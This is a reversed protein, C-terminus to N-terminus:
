IYLLGIRYRPLLLFPFLEDFFYFDYHSRMYRFFLLLSPDDRFFFIFMIKPFCASLYSLRKLKQVRKNNNVSLRILRCCKLNRVLSLKLLASLKRCKNFIVYSVSLANKRNGIYDKPKIPDHFVEPM